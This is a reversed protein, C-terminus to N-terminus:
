NESLNLHVYKITKRNYTYTIHVTGDEGQIVAPYSFEGEPQDELIILDSWNGGDESVKVVLKNRGRKVPNCVLLSMGNKLTV